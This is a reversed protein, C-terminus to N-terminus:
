GADRARRARREADDRMQLADLLWQDAFARGRTEELFRRMRVLEEPTATLIELHAAGGTSANPGSRSSTRTPEGGDLVAASSAPAWGLKDEVIALTDASVSSGRELNGLTRETIGTATAFERRNRYGLAIRDRVVYGALRKWDRGSVRGSDRRTPPRDLRGAPRGPPRREQMKM